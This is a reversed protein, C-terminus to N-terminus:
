QIIEFTSLITEFAEKDYNGENRGIKLKIGKIIRRHIKKPSSFLCWAVEYDRSMEWTIIERYRIIEVNNENTEKRWNLIEYGATSFSKQPITPDYPIQIVILRGGAYKIHDFASGIGEYSNLMKLYEQEEYQTLKTFVIIGEPPYSKGDRETEKKLWEEIDEQMLVYDDENKM